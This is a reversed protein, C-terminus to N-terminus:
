CAVYFCGYLKTLISPPRDSYIQSKKELLDTAAKFSNLVVIQMGPVTISVIDSAALIESQTFTQISGLYTSYVKSWNRYTIWPRILPIDLVNGILPWPKPGPPRPQSSRQLRRAVFLTFGLLFCIVIPASPM